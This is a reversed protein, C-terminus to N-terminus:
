SQWSQMINGLCRMELVRPTATNNEGGPQILVRLHVCRNQSIIKCACAGVLKTNEMLASRCNVWASNRGMRSCTYRSKSRDMAPSHEDAVLPRVM